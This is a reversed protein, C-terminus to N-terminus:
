KELAIQMGKLMRPRDFCGSIMCLRDLAETRWQPFMRGGKLRQPSKTGINHLWVLRQLRPIQTCLSKYLDEADHDGLCIIVRILFESEGRTISNFIQRIKKTEATMPKGNLWPIYDADAEVCGNSHPFVLVDSGSTGAYGAANALDCAIQAQEACSPSIDPLFLIAPRGTITDEKLANPLPRRVVMRKVLKTASTVPIPTLSEGATGGQSVLRNILGAVKGRLKTPVRRLRGTTTAIQRRATLSPAAAAKEKSFSARRRAQSLAQRAAKVAAEGKPSDDKAQEAKKLAERAKNLLEQEPTPKPPEPQTTRPQQPLPAQDAESEATSDSGPGPNGDAPSGNASNDAAGSNGAQPQGSGAPQGGSNTSKGTSPQTQSSGQQSSSEGDAENDEDEEADPKRFHESIARLADANPGFRRVLSDILKRAGRAPPLSRCSECTCDARIDGDGTPIVDAFNDHRALGRAAALLAQQVGSDGVWAPRDAAVAAFLRQLHRLTAM